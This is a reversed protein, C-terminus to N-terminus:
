QALALQAQFRVAMREALKQARAVTAANMPAEMQALVSTSVHNGGAAAVRLWADGLAENRAVVKGELYMLGLNHQASTLGADAAKQFLAFAAADDRAVGRGAWYMLALANQAPAYGQAAAKAYWKVAQRFKKPDCKDMSDGLQFQALASGHAAEVKTRRLEARGITPLDYTRISVATERPQAPALPAASRAEEVPRAAPSAAAASRSYNSGLDAGAAAFAAAQLVLVALFSFSTPVRM